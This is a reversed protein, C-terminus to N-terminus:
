WVLLFLFFTVSRKSSLRYQLHHRFCVGWLSVFHSPDLMTDHLPRLEQIRAAERRNSPNGIVVESLESITVLNTPTM